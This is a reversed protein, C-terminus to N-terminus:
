VNEVEPQNDMLIIKIDDNQQELDVKQDRALFLIDKTTDCICFAFQGRLKKICEEGWEEYAHIISETDSKTYFRHGKKELKAKIELFNYIEGNFVIWIDENENHQPQHGTDLDIIKLRKVGISIGNDVFYGEDDPGRHQILNCMRKILDKDEFNFGSLGCM